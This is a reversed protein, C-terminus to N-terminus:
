INTAAKRTGKETSFSACHVLRTGQVSWASTGLRISGGGYHIIASHPLFVETFGFHDSTRRASRRDFNRVQRM